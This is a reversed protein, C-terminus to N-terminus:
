QERARHLNKIAEDVREIPAEREPANRLVLALGCLVAIMGLGMTWCIREHLYVAGELLAVLPMLFFRAALQHPKLERLLWYYLLFGVASSLVALFLIAVESATTWESQRDSEVVLSMAGLTVGAILTSIAAVTLVPIDKLWRKALVTTVSGLIVVVSIVGGGRGEEPSISISHGLVLVAGAMGLLLGVLAPQELPRRTVGRGLWREMGATLLPATAFLISTKGSGIWQEAWATLSFPLAMMLTSVLVLM